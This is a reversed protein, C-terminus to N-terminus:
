LYIKKKYASKSKQLMNYQKKKDKKSLSKPLYRLPVKKNKM